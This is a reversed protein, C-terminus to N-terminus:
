KAISKCKDFHYRRMNGGGGQLGCHPCEVIKRKGKCAASLRKTYEPDALRKAAGAVYPVPDRVLGRAAGYKEKREEETLRDKVTKMHWDARKAPHYEGSAYGIASPKSNYCQDFFADLFEQELERAEQFDKAEGGIRFEFAAEGYKNWANQLHSCHHRNNLLARKHERFRREINVSSGVYARRTPIHIIGYVGIM